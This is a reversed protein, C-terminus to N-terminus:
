DLEFVVTLTASLGQEGPVIPLDNVLVGMRAMTM